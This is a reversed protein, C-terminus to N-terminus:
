QPVFSGCAEGIKAAAKDFFPAYSPACTDGFEHYPFKSLLDEFNLPGGEDYTCGPVMPEGEELPQPVVALMVVTSADKKAAVVAEYQMKAYSKSKIDANDM